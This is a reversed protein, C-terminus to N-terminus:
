PRRAEFCVEPYQEAPGDLLAAPRGKLHRDFFAVSYANIIRHARQAGIPGSLGFTPALPSLLPVDTMDVHFMGPVQVYYGDGPLSEYAARM